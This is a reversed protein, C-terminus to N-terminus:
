EMGRREFREEIWAAIDELTRAGVAEEDEDSQKERVKAMEASRDHLEKLEGNAFVLELVEGYKWVAQFGMHEYLDEKIDAAIQLRGSFRLPLGVNLYNDSFARWGHRDNPPVPYVGHLAPGCASNKMMALKPNPGSRIKAKGDKRADGERMRQIEVDWEPNDYNIGLDELVLQNERLGFTAVYGRWCATGSPAAPIGYREPDFLEGSPEDALIGALSYRKGLYM